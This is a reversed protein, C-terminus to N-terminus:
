NKAVGSSYGHKLHPGGKLHPVFLVAVIAAAVFLLAFLFVDRFSAAFAEM